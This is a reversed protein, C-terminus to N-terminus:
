FSYQLWAVILLAIIPPMLAYMYSGIGITQRKGNIMFFKRYFLYLGAVYLPILWIVMDVVLYTVGTSSQWNGYDSSCAELCRTPKYYYVFAFPYGRQKEIACEDFFHCNDPQVEPSVYAFGALAIISTLILAILWLTAPAKLRQLM